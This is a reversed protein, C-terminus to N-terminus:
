VYRWKSLYVLYSKRNSFDWDWYTFESGDSFGREVDSINLYFRVVIVTDYIMNSLGM